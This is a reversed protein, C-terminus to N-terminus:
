RGQQLIRIIQNLEAKTVYADLPNAMNGLNINGVSLSRDVNSIMQAPLQPLRVPQNHIPLVTEGALAKIVVEQGTPGPIVGGNHLVPIGGRVDRESRKTNDRNTIATNLGVSGYIEQLRAATEKAPEILLESETKAAEEAMELRRNYYEQEDELRREQALKLDVSKQDESIRQERLSIKLKRREEQLEIEFRQQLKEVSQANREDIDALENDLEIKLAERQRQAQTGADQESQTARTQADQTDAEAAELSEFFLLADRSLAAKRTDRDLRTQIANLDRELSTNIDVVNQALEKEIQAQDRAADRKAEVLERNGEETAETLDRQLDIEAQEIDDLYKRAIEARDQANDIAADIRDRVGRKQIDLLNQQHDEEIRELEEANDKAEGPLESDGGSGSDGGLGGLLNVEPTEALEIYGDRIQQFATQYTDVWSNVADQSKRANAEAEALFPAAAAFPDQGSAIADFGAKVANAYALFRDGQAILIVTATASWTVFAASIAALTNTIIGGSNETQTAALSLANIYGEYLPLIQEGLSAAAAQQKADLAAQRGALTEAFQAARGQLENTQELFLQYRQRAKEGDTLQEWVLGQSEAYDKVATENLSLGLFEASEAEGRLASTTREIAGQLDTKGAALDATRRLVTLMETESLGLRKTMDVLRSSANNLERDSFIRLEANLDKVNKRWSETTGISNGFEKNAAQVSATLNFEANQSEVAQDTLQRLAVAAAVIAATAATLPGAIRSGISKLQSFSRSIRKGSKEGADGVKDFDKSASRAFEESKKEIEKFRKLVDSVDLDASYELDNQPM